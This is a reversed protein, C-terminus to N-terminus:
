PRSGNNSRVAKNLCERAYHGPEGCKYCGSNDGGGGGSSGKVYPNPCENPMHGMQNCKRSPQQCYRAMHGPEQCNYCVVERYGGASGANGRSPTQPQECDSAIHGLEGCNYCAGGNSRSKTQFKPQTCDRKMHGPERCNYCIGDIASGRNKRNNQNQKKPCDRAIHGPEKCYYCSGDGSSVSPSRRQPIYVITKQNPCDTVAHGEKGCTFCENPYTVDVAVNVNKGNIGLGIKFLVKQGEVLLRSDSKIGSKMVYFEKEKGKKGSTIYGFGKENDYSKVVGRQRKLVIQTEEKAVEAPKKVAEPQKRGKEAM